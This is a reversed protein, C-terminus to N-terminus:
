DRKVKLILVIVFITLVILYIYIYNYQSLNKITSINKRNVISYICGKSSDLILLRKNYIKISKIKSNKDFKIQERQVKPYKFSYLLNDIKDYFFICNKEDIDGSNDACIAGLSSVKTHQYIPSPPNMSPHNELLFDLKSKNNGKFKPSTVPDGGSYDPWGYWLGKKIEYIYDTDGIVARSGRNEMGGIACVLKNENFDMGTVNRIGWAFTSSQKGNIDYVVISSNGPFHEPVIQVKISKTGYSQFAGTRNNGFNIGKLTIDNPTIDCVYPQSKIWDNDKGVVGSNTAAGISVYINNGNIRILSKNYDGYNPIGSTFEKNSRNKIDYCYIKDKSIYYLKGDKYDISNIDFKSKKILNYSKGNKEIAQIKSPYAIYYNGINDSTFDVADKLGKYSVSYNLNKNELKLDPVNGGKYFYIRISYAVIFVVVSCFLIKLFKGM